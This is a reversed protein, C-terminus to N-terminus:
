HTILNIVRLGHLLKSLGPICDYGFQALRDNAHVVYDVLHHDGDEGTPVAQENADGPQGLGQEHAGKGLGHGQRELTNLECGVQHGRVNRPGLQELLIRFGM